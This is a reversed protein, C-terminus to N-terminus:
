RKGKKFEGQSLRKRSLHKKIVLYRCHTYTGCVYVHSIEPYLALAEIHLEPLVCATPVTTCNDSHLQCSCYRIYVTVLFCLTYSVSPQPDLISAASVSSRSSPGTRRIECGQRDGVLGNARPSSTWVCFSPPSHSCELCPLWLSLSICVM